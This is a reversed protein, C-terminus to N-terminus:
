YQMGEGEPGLPVIFIELRGLRAHELPYTRQPLVPQRPGRFLLSFPTRRFGVSAQKGATVEVLKLVLPADAGYDLQFPSGLETAFTEYTVESLVAPAKKSGSEFSTTTM